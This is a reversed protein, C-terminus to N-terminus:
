EVIGVENKSHIIREKNNMKSMLAEQKAEIASM